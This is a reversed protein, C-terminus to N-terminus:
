RRQDILSEIANLDFTPIDRRAAVASRERHSDDIFIASTEVIFDTKQQDSGVQTVSDFLSDLCYQKLIATVDGPNRTILHLSVGHNLCQYLFAILVTNVCKDVILTDDLDVYVHDYTVSPKFRNILARDMRLTHKSAKIDIDMELRDYVSLLALNVGLNRTLAMAGAIRPAIELLALDGENTQKVQFFWGGRLQLTKNITEAMHELPMHEVPYTEVSIGNQVRARIRPGIFRLHGNRDTFCDVTFEPGPLYELILLEPNRSVIMRTEIESQALYTGHSGQGVDPKLFVPFQDIAEVSHYLRPTRLLDRFTSYTLSKRRCIECTNRPSGIVPCKLFAEHRALELVVSDHAPYVFDINEAIILENLADIFGRENVFPLGEFYRKYVYKGHNSSVSSAGFLQIHTSWELSRHLELGIESGCPFVLVRLPNTNLESSRLKSERVM